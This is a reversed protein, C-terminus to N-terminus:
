DDEESSGEDARRRSIQKVFRIMMMRFILDVLITIGGEGGRWKDLRIEAQRDDEQETTQSITVVVDALRPKDYSESFSEQRVMSGKASAKAHTTSWIPINRIESQKKIEKYVKTVSLRYSEQKKSPILHDGSDYIILDPRWNETIEINRLYGEIDAVSVTDIPAHIVKLSDAKTRRLRRMAINAERITKRTWVFDTIFSYPYKLLRSDYRGLTQEPTNEFVFHAV